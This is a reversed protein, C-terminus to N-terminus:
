FYRERRTGAAGAPNDLVFSRHRETSRHDNVEAMIGWVNPNRPADLIVGWRFERGVQSDDLGVTAAFGPCGDELTVAQMPVTTWRDSYQGREDWSGTLRPNRFTDRRLGTAYVFEVAIAAM